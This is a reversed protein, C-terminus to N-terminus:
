APRRGAAKGVALTLAVQEPYDSGGRTWWELDAVACTSARLSTADVDKVRRVLLKAAYPHMPLSSEIERASKGAELAEVAMRAERLRKAAQYVLPTVSEGQETLRAAAIAASGPDRDVIADSLAWVVEESTDAVMAELDDLRVAGGEGAWLALRDLEAALRTTSEGLRDVLLRAADIDLIFSRERAGQVLKAPLDRAKPADFRSVQGGAAGVAEVLSKQARAGKGKAPPEHAILVLTLDPPLSVIAAAVPKAQAASWREVGNVLLYRHTAMLSMASISAIVEDADPAVESGFSELAGEGGERTARARLRSVTADIKASDDGAFLYVPALARSDAASDSM